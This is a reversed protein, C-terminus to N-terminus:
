LITSFVKLDHSGADTAKMGIFSRTFDGALALYVPACTESFARLLVRYLDFDPVVYLIPDIREAQEFSDRIRAYDSYRKATREYELNFTRLGHALRVTVIADFDKPHPNTLYQNRFRILPEPEWSDLIHDRVLSLHLDNLALAHLVSVRERRGNDEISAPFWEGHSILVSAGVDTISYVYGETFLLKSHRTLLGKEVMRRVRWNFSHRKLEYLGHRMFASLQGHTILQSHLVQRLLPVDKDDSIGICGKQFRM